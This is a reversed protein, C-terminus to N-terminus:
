NYSLVGEVQDSLSNSPLVLKNQQRHPNTLLIASFSGRFGQNEEYM